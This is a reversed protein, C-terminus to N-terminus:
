HIHEQHKNESDTLQQEIIKKNNEYEKVKDELTNIIKMLKM